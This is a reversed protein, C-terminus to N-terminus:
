KVLLLHAPSLGMPLPVDLQRVCRSGEHQCYAVGIADLIPEESRGGTLGSTGIISRGHLFTGLAM